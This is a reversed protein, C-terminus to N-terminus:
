GPGGGLYPVASALLPALIWLDTQLEGLVSGGLGLSAAISTRQELVEVPDGEAPSIEEGLTRAWGRMPQRALMYVVTVCITGVAGFALIITPPFDSVESGGRLPRAAALALTALGVLTGLSPLLRSALDRLRLYEVVQADLPAQRDRTRISDRLSIFVLVTPTGGLVAVMCLLAGRITGGTQPMALGAIVLSGVTALAAVTRVIVRRDPVAAGPRAMLERLGRVGIEFVLASAVALSGALAAWILFGVSNWADRRDAAAFLVLALGAAIFFVFVTARFATSDAPRRYATPM